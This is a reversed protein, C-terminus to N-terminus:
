FCRWIYKRFEYKSMNAIFRGTVAEFPKGNIELWCHLCRGYVGCGKLFGFVIKPKIWAKVLLDNFDNTFQTCDYRGYVYTKNGLNANWYSEINMAMVAPLNANWYNGVNMAMAAPMSLMIFVMIITMRLM